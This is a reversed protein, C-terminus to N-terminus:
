GVVERPSTMPDIVLVVMEGCLFLFPFFTPWLGQMSM